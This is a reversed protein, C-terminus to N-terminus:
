AVYFPKLESTKYPKLSTETPVINKEGLATLSLWQHFDSIVSFIEHLHINYEWINEGGQLLIIKLNKTYIIFLEGWSTFDYM